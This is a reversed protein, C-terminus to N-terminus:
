VNIAQIEEYAKMLKNRVQLLLQFAMDAKQIGTVVEATDIDEGSLLREIDNQSANQKDNVSKIGDLLFDGFDISNSSDGNALKGGASSLQRNFETMLSSQNRIQM